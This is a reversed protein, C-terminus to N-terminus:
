RQGEPSSEQRRHRGHPAAEEDHAAVPGRHKGHGANGMAEQPEATPDTQTETM